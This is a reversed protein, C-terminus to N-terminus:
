NDREQRLIGERRARLELELMLIVYISDAARDDRIHRFAAYMAESLKDRDRHHTAIWEANTETVWAEYVQNAIAKDEGMTRWGTEEIWDMASGLMQRPTKIERM